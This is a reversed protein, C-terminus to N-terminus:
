PNQGSAIEKAKQELARFLAGHLGPKKIEESATIAALAEKASQPGRAEVVKVALVGYSEAVDALAQAFPKYAAIWANPKDPDANDAFERLMKGGDQVSNSTTLYTGILLVAFSEYGELAFSPFDGARPRPRRNELLTAIERFFGAFKLQDPDETFLPTARLERNAKYFDDVRLLVLLALGRQLAAWNKLPQPADPNKVIQEWMTAAQSFNGALFANRAEQDARQAQGGTASTIQRGTAEAIRDRGLWFAVGGFILVGVLSLLMILGILSRQQKSEVVVPTPKARAEPNRLREALKQQCYTLHEILEGYTQYREHQNKAMMRNIVYATEDSVHPAFAQISVPQSKLQKLAVMSATAAEYPPRGALAHFLTGGLSYIDSRHDEDGGDLKEPAIYYPTGWIEGKAAAVEDMVLALGFDVLKATHPDAFLINGPKIDRHIMGVALAAELGGAIQIAVSLVQMESVRGQLTILDDLSGHPVLEMAIFFQGEAVGSGYVKVVHPHNIAATRRAELELKAIEEQTGSFSPHLVKLAVERGLEEDQARFVQGMGGQGLKSLLLFRGLRRKVQVTQYCQPCVVEALFSYTDTDIMAGCEPCPEQSFEPTNSFESM